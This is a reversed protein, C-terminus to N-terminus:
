FAYRVSLGADFALPTDGGSGQYKFGTADRLGASAGLAFHRDMMYYELGLRGGAYLGLSEAKKFGIIALANTRIDASMAGISGQLYAGFRDTFRVTFRVGGGFGFMPFARTKPPDQTGSTDSFGLEGEAFPMLWKFIEYGIQTRLWPATPATDGFKGLFRLAGLSGDIVLSKKYPPPPPAEPPAEPVPADLSSPEVDKELNVSAGEPLPAPPTDQAYAPSSLGLLIVPM